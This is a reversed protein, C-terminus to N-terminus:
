CLLLLSDCTSCLDPLLCTINLFIPWCKFAVLVSSSWSFFAIFTYVVLSSLVVIWSSCVCYTRPEIGPMKPELQSEVYCSQSLGVQSESSSSSHVTSASISWNITQCMRRHSLDSAFSLPSLVKLSVHLVGPIVNKPIPPFCAAPLQLFWGHAGNASKEGACVPSIM